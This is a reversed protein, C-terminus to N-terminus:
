LWIDFDRPVYERTCGGVRSGSNLSLFVQQHHWNLTLILNSNPISNAFIKM